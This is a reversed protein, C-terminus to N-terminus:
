YLQNVLNLLKKEPVVVTCSCTTKTKRLILDSKGANKLEFDTKVVDGQNISGFNFTRKSYIALPANALEEKTLHTFDEHINASVTLRNDKNWEGNQKVIIKNILLGYDNIQTGDYKVVIKGKEMPKLIKPVATITMAKPIKEFEIKVPKVSINIIKVVNAKIM